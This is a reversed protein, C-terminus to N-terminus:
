GHVVHYKCIYTDDISEHEGDDNDIEELPSDDDSNWESLKDDSDNKNDIYRLMSEDAGDADWENGFVNSSSRVHNHLNYSSCQSLRWIYDESCVNSSRL